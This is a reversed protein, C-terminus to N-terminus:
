DTTSKKVVTTAIRSAAVGLHTGLKFDNNKPGVGRFLEYGDLLTFPPTPGTPIVSM